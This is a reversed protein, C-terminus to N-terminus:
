YARLKITTPVTIKNIFTPSMPNKFKIIELTILTKQQMYNILRQQPIKFLSLLLIELKLEITILYSIFFLLKHALRIFSM